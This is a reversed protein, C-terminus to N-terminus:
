IEIFSMTNDENERLNKNKKPITSNPLCSFFKTRGIMREAHELMDIEYRKTKNRKKEKM